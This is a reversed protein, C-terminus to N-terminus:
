VMLLESFVISVYSPLARPVLLALEYLVVMQRRVQPRKVRQHVYGLRQLSIQRVPFRSSYKEIGSFDPCRNWRPIPLPWGLCSSYQAFRRQRDINQRAKESRPGSFQYFEQRQQAPQSSIGARGHAQRTELICVDARSEGKGSEARAICHHLFSVLIETQLWSHPFSTVM